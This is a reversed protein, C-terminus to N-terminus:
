GAERWEVLDDIAVGLIRGSRSHYREPREARLKRDAAQHTHVFFYFCSTHRADECRVDGDRAKREAAQVKHCCEAHLSLFPCEGQVPLRVAVSNGRIERM